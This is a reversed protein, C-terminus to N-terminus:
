GGGQKATSEGRTHALGLKGGLPNSAERDQTRPVVEALEIRAKLVFGPASSWHAAVHALERADEIVGTFRL